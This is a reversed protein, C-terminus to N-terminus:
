HEKKVEADMIRDLMSLCLQNFHPDQDRYRRIAQMPDRDDLIARLARTITSNEAYSKIELDSVIWPFPHHFPSLHCM